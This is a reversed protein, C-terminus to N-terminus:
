EPLSQVRCSAPDLRLDMPPNLDDVAVAGPTDLLATAAMAERRKWASVDLLDRVFGEPDRTRARDACAQVFRAARDRHAQAQARTALADRLAAAAEGQVGDLAAYFANRLRDPTPAAESVNSVASLGRVPKLGVCTGCGGDIVANVCGQDWVQDCCYDDAECVCAQVDPAECGPSHHAVCCGLVAPAGDPPATTGDLEAFSPAHDLLACRSVSYVPTTLDISLVDLVFEEDVIALDILTQVYAVDAAAREVFTFGFFTDRPGILGEVRSGIEGLAAVYLAAEFEVSPEAGFSGFSGFFPDVFFSAPVRDVPTPQGTENPLGGSQLNLSTGCFLPELLMRTSGGHLDTRAPDALADIRTRNWHANGARVVGALEAGTSRSGLESFRDSVVGAGVTRVSASEWHVWPADLERMVLGGDTHCSACASTERTAPDIQDFSDGHFVWQAVEGEGELAYFDYVGRLRDFAMVQIGTQPLEPDAADINPTTYLLEYPLRRECQRGVVARVIDPKELLQARESVIRGLMGTRPDDACRDDDELRLKDVMETLTQPCAGPRKLVIQAFPDDLGELFAPDAPRGSADVVEQCAFMEPGPDDCDDGDCALGGDAIRGGDDGCGTALSAFLVAWHAGARM